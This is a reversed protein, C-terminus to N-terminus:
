VLPFDAKEVGSQRQAVSCSTLVSKEGAGSRRGTVPVTTTVVFRDGSETMAFGFTHTGGTVPEIARGDARIRFDSNPLTIPKPLKPGTIQGSGWGRGFYIWGDMGWQPANIGRELEGTRFGTFLVERIEAKGDGDHDALYVIDPACAVIVGGRAPVIGYAPPLDSAWVDVQDMRGDGDTDRLLKVKGYTGKKAARQFKEDAQVRRVQTDLKGAKNLEEIDLHGPLNYGHLECVFMRGREDWCVGSPAAILPENAVVDVRFGEPLKFAAASEKPSLPKPADVPKPIEAGPLAASLIFSSIAAAFKM